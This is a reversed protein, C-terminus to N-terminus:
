PGAESPPRPPSSPVTSRDTPTARITASPPEISPATRTPGPTSPGVHTPTAAHALEDLLATLWAVTVAVPSRGDSSVPVTTYAGARALAESYRVWTTTDILAANDTVTTVLSDFAQRVLRTAAAPPILQPLAEALKAGLAALGAAPNALGAAAIEALNAPTLVTKAVTAVSNLAISGVKVVAQLAAHLDLPTRPDSAEAVRQALSVQPSLQLSSLSQGGVDENVVSVATKITTFALAQTVAALARLPDGGAESVSQTVNAVVTAVPARPTTDCVLDGAICFSAVRGALAGYDRSGSRRDPSSPEATDTGSVEAAATAIGAGTLPQQPLLALTTVARSDTRPTPDAGDNSAAGPLLPAGAPRASDAFLAVAAVAEAPVPGGGAGVQEAFAAAPQAAQADAVIALRTGPCRDYTEATIQSLATTTEALSAQFPTPGRGSSVGHGTPRMRVYARAFEGQERTVLPRLVEGVLGSDVDMPTGDAAQGPSQVGVAFLLPCPGTPAPDAAAGPSCSAAMLVSTLAAFGGQAISSIM